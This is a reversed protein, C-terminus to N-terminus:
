AERIDLDHWQGIMLTIIVARRQIVRSIWPVVAQKRSWLLCLEHCGQGPHCWTDIAGSRTETDVDSSVWSGRRSCLNAFHCPVLGLQSSTKYISKLQLMGLGKSNGKTMLTCCCTSALFIIHGMFPWILVKTSHPVCTCAPPPCMSIRIEAGNM